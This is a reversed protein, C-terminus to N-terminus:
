VGSHIGNGVRDREVSEQGVCGIRAVEVPDVPRHQDGREPASGSPRTGMSAWALPMGTRAQSRPAKGPFSPLAPKM